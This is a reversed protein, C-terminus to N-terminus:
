LEEPGVQEDDPATDALLRRLEELEELGPGRDNGGLEEVLGADDAGGHRRFFGTGAALDWAAGIPTSRPVQARQPLNTVNRVEGFPPTKGDTPCIGRRGLLPHTISLRIPTTIAAATSPTTASVTGADDCGAGRKVSVILGVSPFTPVFM